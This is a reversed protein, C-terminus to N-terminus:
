RVRELEGTRATDYGPLEGLLRRYSRSRVVEILARIRPAMENSSPFCLDYAEERVQLFELDAEASALRVCVGADAWGCRVAEAVGRHDRALRRPPPRSELLEDLCQRAGSGPERGVWRLKGRRAARISRIGSARAVAIGEQWHAIRLCSFGTGLKSRVVAANGGSSDARALHVGAAHVLDQGLLALAQQSSRMLVLLRIGRSRALEAVLLGVAPDCCAIVLTDRPDVRGHEVFSGHQYIGDHELTGLGNAEVPYRVVRGGVEAQWYRSPEQSPAWAWEEAAEPPAQLSFLDEVRCGLAQALGLAAAASPVLRNIEIASVGARSIGARRALEDQSWGRRLRHDRLRNQLQHSEAM